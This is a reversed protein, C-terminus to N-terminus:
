YLRRLILGACRRRASLAYARYPQISKRLMRLTHEEHDSSVQRVVQYLSPAKSEASMGEITKKRTMIAISLAVSGSISLSTVAAMSATQKDMGVLSAPIDM